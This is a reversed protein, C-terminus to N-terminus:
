KSTMAKTHKPYVGLQLFTTMPFHFFSFAGPWFLLQSYRLTAFDDVTFNLFKPLWRLTVFVVKLPYPTSFINTVFLRDPSAYTFKNPQFSRVPSSHTLKDQLHKTGHLCCTTVNACADLKSPLVQQGSITIASLQGSASELLNKQM